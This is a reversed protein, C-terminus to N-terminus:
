DQNEFLFRYKKDKGHKLKIGHHCPGIIAPVVLEQRSKGLWGQNLVSHCLRTKLWVGSSVM